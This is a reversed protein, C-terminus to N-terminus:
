VHLSCIDNNSLSLCAKEKVGLDVLRVPLDNGLVRQCVTKPAQDGTTKQVADVSMEQTIRRIAYDCLVRRSEQELFSLKKSGASCNM